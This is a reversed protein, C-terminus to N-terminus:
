ASRRGLDLWWENWDKFGEPPQLLAARRGEERRITLAKQLTKDAPSGPADRNGALTVNEFQPPLDMRALGQVATPVAVRRVPDAAVLTMGEEIAEAITISSGMPADAWAYGKVLEGAKNQRKGPWLRIAGGLTSGLSLKGEIEESKGEDNTFFGEFRDGGRVRDWRGAREILWTRHIGTTHGELNVVAAVMAPFKRRLHPHELAPHYRLANLAWPLRRISIGRADRLYFEVPTGLLRREAEYFFVRRAISEKAKRRDAIEQEEAVRSAANKARQEPSLEPVVGNLIEDRCYAFAAKMDANGFKVYNILGVVDGGERNGAYHVWMGAKAGTTTVHLSSGPWGQAKHGAKWVRLQKDYHGGILHPLWSEISDCLAKKVDDVASLM